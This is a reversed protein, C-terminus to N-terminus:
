GVSVYNKEKKNTLKEYKWYFVIECHKNKFMAYTIM